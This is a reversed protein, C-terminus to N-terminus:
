ERSKQPQRNQVICFAVFAMDHTEKQTGIKPSLSIFYVCTCVYMLVCICVYLVCIIMLHKVIYLYVHMCIICVYIQTYIIYMYPCIYYLSM